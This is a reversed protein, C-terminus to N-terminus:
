LLAMPCLVTFFRVAPIPGPDAASDRKRLDTHRSARVGNARSPVLVMGGCARERM